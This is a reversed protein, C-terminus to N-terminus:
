LNYIKTSAMFQVFSTGNGYLMRNRWSGPYLLSMIESFSGKRQRKNM